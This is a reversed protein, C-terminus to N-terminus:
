ILPILIISLISTLIVIWSTLTTDKKSYAMYSVLTPTTPLFSFILLQKKEIESLIFLTNQDIITLLVVVLPVFSLKTIVGLTAESIQAVGRAGSGILLCGLVLYAGRFERHLELFLDPLKPTAIIGLIVAWFIPFKLFSRETLYQYNVTSEFLTTIVLFLMWLGLGEEGFLAFCIPIGFFGGGPLISAMLLDKKKFVARGVLFAIVYSIFLFLAPILSKFELQAISGFIVFPSLIYLFVRSLPELPLYKKFLAGVIILLYIPALQYM